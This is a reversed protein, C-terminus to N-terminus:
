QITANRILKLTYVGDAVVQISYRQITVDQENFVIKWKYGNPAPQDNVRLDSDNIYDIVEYYINGSSRAQELLTNVSDKSKLNYKYTKVNKGDDVVLTASIPKPQEISQKVVKPTLKLDKRNLVNNVYIVGILLFVVYILYMFKKHKDTM